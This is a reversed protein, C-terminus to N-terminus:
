FQIVRVDKPRGTNVSYVRRLVDLAEENRGMTLLFKPSEPLYIVAALALANILSSVLIYMRWPTYMLGFIEFKWSMPMVFLGMLPQYVATVSSFM